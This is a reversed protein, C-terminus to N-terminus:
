VNSYIFLAPFYVSIGLLLVLLWYFWDFKDLIRRKKLFAQKQEDSRDKIYESLFHITKGKIMREYPVKDFKAHVWVSETGIKEAIDAYFKFRKFNYYGVFAFVGYPFISFIFLFVPRLWGIPSLYNIAQAIALVTVLGFISAVFLSAFSVARDGYFDLLASRATLTNSMDDKDSLM